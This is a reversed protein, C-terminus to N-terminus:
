ILIRKVRNWHLVIIMLTMVLPIGTEWLEEPRNDLFLHILFMNIAVPLLMVAGLLRTKPLVLLLGSLAQIAGVVKFFGSRCFATIVQQYDLPITSETGFFKCPKIFHKTIGKYMFFGGLLTALVLILISGIKKMNM